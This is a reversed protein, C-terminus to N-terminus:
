VHSSASYLVLWHMDTADENDTRSYMAATFKSWSVGNWVDRIARQTVGFKHALQMSLGHAGQKQDRFSVFIEMVAFPTLFTRTVPM